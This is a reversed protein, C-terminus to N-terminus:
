NLEIESFTRMNTRVTADPIYACRVAARPLLVFYWCVSCACIYKSAFDENNSFSSFFNAHSM